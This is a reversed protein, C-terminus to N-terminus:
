GRESFIASIRSARQSVHFVFPQVCCLTGKVLKEWYRLLHVHLPDISRVRTGYTVCNLVDGPGIKLARNSRM